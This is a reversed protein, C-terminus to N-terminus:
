SLHINKWNACVPLQLPAHRPSDSRVLHLARSGMGRIASKAYSFFDLFISIINFYSFVDRLFDIARPMSLCFLYLIMILSVTDIDEKYKPLEPQIMGTM